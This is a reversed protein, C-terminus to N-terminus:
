SEFFRFPVGNKAAIGAVALHRQRRDAHRQRRSLRRAVLGGSRALAEQGGLSPAMSKVVPIMTAVFPINDLVASLLASVWLIASAALPSSGHTLVALRQALVGLLGTHEISGVVVFLGVFFFM